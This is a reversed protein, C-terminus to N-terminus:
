LIMDVIRIRLKRHRIVQRSGGPRVVIKIDIRNIRLNIMGSKIFSDPEVSLRVWIEDIEGREQTSLDEPTTGADLGKDLM